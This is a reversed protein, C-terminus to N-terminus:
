IEITAHSIMRNDRMRVISGNQFHIGRGGSGVLSRYYAEVAARFNKYNMQGMFGPPPSIELPHKDFDSGVTQKIDCFLDRHVEKGTELDFFVRSVMHEDTSGYDQSDQHLEKFVIKM